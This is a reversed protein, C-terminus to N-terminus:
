KKKENPKINNLFFISNIIIKPRIDDHYKIAKYQIYGEENFLADHRM